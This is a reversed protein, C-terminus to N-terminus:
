KVPFFIKSFFIFMKNKKLSKISFFIIFFRPFFLRKKELYDNLGKNIDELLSESFRLKDLMKEKSVVVLAKPEQFSSNM